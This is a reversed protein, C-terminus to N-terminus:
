SRCDEWNVRFQCFKACKATKKKNFLNLICYDLIETTKFWGCQENSDQTFKHGTKTFSILHTKGFLDKIYSKKTGDLRSSFKIAQTGTKISKSIIKSFNETNESFNEPRCDSENMALVQLNFFM